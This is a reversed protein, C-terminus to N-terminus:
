LPQEVLADFVGAFQEFGGGQGYVLDGAVAAEAGGFGQALVQV